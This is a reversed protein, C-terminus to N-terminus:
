LFLDQDCKPLVFEEALVHGNNAHWMSKETVAIQVSGNVGLMM